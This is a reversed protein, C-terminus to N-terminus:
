TILFVDVTKKDIFQGTLVVTRGSEMANEMISSEDDMPIMTIGHAELLRFQKNVDGINNKHKKSNIINPNITEINEMDKGQVTNDTASMHIPQFIMKSKTGFQATVNLHPYFLQLFFCM